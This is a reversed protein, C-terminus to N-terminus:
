KKLSYEGELHAKFHEIEDGKLDDLKATDDKVKWKFTFKTGVPAKEKVTNKAEDQGEFDTIKAKVLGEKELSYECIVAIVKSDGHPIIKVVNKDAFEIKAEGGKLVWVGSLAPKDKKDDASASLGALILVSCALVVGYHFNKRAMNLAGQTSVRPRQIKPAASGAAFEVAGVVFSSGTVRCGEVGVTGIAITSCGAFRVPSNRKRQRLLGTPNRVPMLWVVM